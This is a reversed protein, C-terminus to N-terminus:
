SSFDWDMLIALTKGITNHCVLDRILNDSKWANCIQRTANMDDKGYVWNWEDPATGTSFEGRFLPEFKSLLEPIYNKDIFNNKILFGKARFEEKDENTIKYNIM